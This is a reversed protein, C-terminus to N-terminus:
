CRTDQLCVVDADEEHLWDFLGAKQAQELGEVVLSVVKMALGAYVLGTDYPFTGRGAMVVAPLNLIAM